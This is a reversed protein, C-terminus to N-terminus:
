RNPGKVRNVWSPVSPGVNPKPRNKQVWDKYAAVHKAMPDKIGALKERLKVEPPADEADLLVGAVAYRLADGLDDVLSKGPPKVVDELSTKVGDGRVLLPIAEALQPAGRHLGDARIIFFDESDLMSYIKTWGAIRDNNSRTVPPLGAAQLLDSVEQAITRNSSVRNFREWSFHISEVQWAYGVEDGDEDKIKPIAAILAATQQEPTKEELYLEALVVNVIKEKAGEWRPKLRAKTMFVITAWHGFGYDWGVWVPQWPEFIFDSAPRVHRDESWNDYYQGTTADLKGYRIRDRLPSKELSNVYSKDQFLIPNDEITSHIYCYDDPNYKEPDMGACPKKDIFVKKIWSWGIGMPNTASGMRAKVGPVTTRNRGELADYISYPFEGLEEFGVFAYETSLYKGVDKETECAAFYLRSQKWGEMQKGDVPSIIPELTVPDFLPVWQPPFYVIHESKNFSGKEQSGREYVSKPIDNEFKDIVTRKLDPMTKRLIIANVGPNEQCIMVAEMLLPKSKGSGFSGIQLRHKCDVDHFYQQKPWPKYFDTWQVVEQPHYDKLDVTPHATKM